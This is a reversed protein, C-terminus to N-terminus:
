LGDQRQLNRSAFLMGVKLVSASWRTLLTCNTLAPAKVTFHIALIANGQEEKTVLAVGM